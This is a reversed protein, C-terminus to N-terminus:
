DTKKALTKLMGATVLTIGKKTVRFGNAIDQERDYGITLGAPIRCGSDVIV